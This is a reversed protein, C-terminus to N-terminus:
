QKNEAPYPTSAVVPETCSPSTIEGSTALTSLTRAAYREARAIEDGRKDALMRELIAMQGDLTLEHFTDLCTV